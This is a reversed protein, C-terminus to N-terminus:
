WSSPCSNSYARPTTSACPLRAHQLEHPRLTLCLQTVLIFKNVGFGATHLFVESHRFIFKFKTVSKKVSLLLKFNNYYSDEGTSYM